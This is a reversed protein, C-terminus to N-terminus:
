LEESAEKRMWLFTFGETFGLHKYFDTAPAGHKVVLHLGRIHHKQTHTLAYQLLKKGVGQKRYAADVYLSSVYAWERLVYVLCMGIPKAGDKAVIILDKNPHKIWEKLGEPSHWGGTPTAWLEPNNKGWRILTPIDKASPKSITIKKM